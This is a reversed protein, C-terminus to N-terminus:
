RNKKASLKIRGAEPAELKSNEKHRSEAVQRRRNVLAGCVPCSSMRRWGKVAMSLGATVLAFQVDKSLVAM